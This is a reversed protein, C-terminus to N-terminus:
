ELQFGLCEVGGQIADSPAEVSCSTNRFNETVHYMMHVELMLVDDVLFCLISTTLTGASNV